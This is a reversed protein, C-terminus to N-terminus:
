ISPVIASGYLLIVIDDALYSCIFDLSFNPLRRPNMSTYAPQATPIPFTHFNATSRNPIERELATSTFIRRSDMGATRPKLTSEPMISRSSKRTDFLRSGKPEKSYRINQVCFRPHPQSFKISSALEPLPFFNGSNTRPYM